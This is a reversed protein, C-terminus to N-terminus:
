GKVFVKGESRKGADGLVGALEELGITGQTLSAVDIKGCAILDLARQQTYPNIFSARLTIEKKFLDFPKLPITDSPSGLGFLMVTSAIGAHNIADLVTARLGVCEIVTDINTIGVSSLVKDMDDHIPDLLIDAGLKKAIKRKASIPESVILRAAGALKALQLMILGITGGGIILVTGGPSMACLDIGHLCCAVPEAMAGAEFSMDGISYVQKHHVVCYEAFGGDHTTGYGIMNECFHAKGSKCPECMGCTNNPDISVRDGCAVSTVNAGIADVIGAFEHGLITPPTTVAAGEAGHFIHVDTGCIGCAMVKILVDDTGITPRDVEQVAINGEGLFVAAKMTNDNM